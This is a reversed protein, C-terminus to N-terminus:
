RPFAGQSIMPPFDGPSNMQKSFKPRYSVIFTLLRGDMFYIVSWLLSPDLFTHCSTVSPPDRTVDCM